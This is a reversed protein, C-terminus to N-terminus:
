RLTPHVPFHPELPHLHSMRHNPPMALAASICVRAFFGACDVLKQRSKRKRRRKKKKEGLM